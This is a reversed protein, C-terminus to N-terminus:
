VKEAKLELLCHWIALSDIEEEFETLNLPSELNLCM